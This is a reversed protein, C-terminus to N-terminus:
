LETEKKTPNAQKINLHVGTLGLVLGFFSESVGKFITTM